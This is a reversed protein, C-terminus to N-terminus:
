LSGPDLLGCESDRWSQQLFALVTCIKDRPHLCVNKNISPQTTYDKTCLSKM